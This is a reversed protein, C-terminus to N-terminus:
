NEETMYTKLREELQFHEITKQIVIDDDDFGDIGEFDKAADDERILYDVATLLYPVFNAHPDSQCLRLIALAQQYLRTAQEKNLFENTKLAVELRGLFGGLQKSLRDIADQYSVISQFLRGWVEAVESDLDIDFNTPNSNM